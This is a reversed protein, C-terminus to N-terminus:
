LFRDVMSLDIEPQVQLAENLNYRDMDYRALGLQRTRIQSRVVDIESQLEQKRKNSHELDTHRQKKGIGWLSLAVALWGIVIEILGNM